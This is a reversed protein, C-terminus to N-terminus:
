CWIRQSLCCQRIKGTICRKKLELSMFVEDPVEFPCTISWKSAKKFGFKPYYDKHGLVIVSEYGLEKARLLGANILNKGIGQNQFMPSVAVPVLSLSNYKQFGSIKIISFLIYGVINGDIEAVLSLEPIFLRIKRLRKVWNHEDNDTHEANRFAMEIVNESFPYDSQMEQRIIM